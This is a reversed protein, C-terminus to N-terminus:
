VKSWIAFRSERLVGILKAEPPVLVDLIELKLINEGKL